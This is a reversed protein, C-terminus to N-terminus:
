PTIHESWTVDVRKCIGSKGEGTAGQSETESGNEEHSTDIFQEEDSTREKSEPGRISIMRHNKAPERWLGPHSSQRPLACLNVDDDDNGQNNRPSANSSNKRISGFIKPFARALPQRLVIVCSSIIGLNAEILTWM